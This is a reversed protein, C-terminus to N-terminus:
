PCWLLPPRAQAHGRGIRVNQVQRKGATPSVLSEPTPQTQNRCDRGYLARCPNKSPRGQVFSAAGQRFLGSQREVPMLDLHAALQEASRFQHNHLVSLMQNGVQPGVAPISTLLDRDQKLHPHSSVHQDIAQQVKALQQELFDTSETISQRIPEPTDTADAKELRNRERRLDQAIAERRSLLAQLERAEQAPPLWPKPNTLAGYKALVLSDVGDTKTRIGLSRGFDKPQVWPAYLRSQGCLGNRRGRALGLRGTRPLRRHSGHRRPNRPRTRM